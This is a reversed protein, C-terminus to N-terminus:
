IKRKLGALLNFDCNCYEASCRGLQRKGCWVGCDQAWWQGDFTQGVECKWGNTYTLGKYVAEEPHITTESRDEFTVIISLWDPYDSPFEPANDIPKIDVIGPVVRCSWRKSEELVDNLNRGLVKVTVDPKTLVSLVNEVAKTNRKEFHHTVLVHDNEDLGLLAECDQKSSGATLVNIRKGMVKLKSIFEGLIPETLPEGGTIEIADANEAMDLAKAEHM